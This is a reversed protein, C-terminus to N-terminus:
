ILEKLFVLQNVADVVSKADGQKTYVPIFQFENHQMGDPYLGLLIGAMLHNGYFPYVGSYPTLFGIKIPGTIV